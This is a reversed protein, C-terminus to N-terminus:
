FQGLFCTFAIRTSFNWSYISPFSSPPFSPLFFRFFPLFSLFSSLALSLALFYSLARSVSLSLFFPLLSGVFSGLGSNWSIYLIGAHVVNQLGNLDIINSNERIELEGNVRVLSSLPSLSVLSPLGHM